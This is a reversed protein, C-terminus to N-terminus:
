VHTEGPPLSMKGQRTNDLDVWLWQAAEIARACVCVCV